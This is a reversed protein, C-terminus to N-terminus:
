NGGIPYFAEKIELPTCVFNGHEKGKAFYCRFEGMQESCENVELEWFFFNDYDREYPGKISCDSTVRNYSIEGCGISLTNGSRAQWNQPRCTLDEVRCAQLLILLGLIRM